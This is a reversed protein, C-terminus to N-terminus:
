SRSSIKLRSRLFASIRRMCDGAGCPAGTIYLLQMTINDRGGRELTKQLLIEATDEKKCGALIKGIEAEDLMDTLGDSCILYIDHKQYTEAAVYPEIMLETEPIGLNQTLPPKTGYASVSVHDYSIQQLEGKSFRFIKSDGINCLWIKRRTFLLVAATTGMSTLDHTEAYTCIEANAERCFDKLEQEPSEGFSIGAMHKAAIYAAVEGCEEGGMGDFVGFVPNEGATIKGCITGVTGSSDPETYRGLCIFNDQNTRRLRGIHSICFYEIGYNM